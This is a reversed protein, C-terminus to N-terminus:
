IKSSVGMNYITLNLNRTKLKVNGVSSHNLVPVFKEKLVVPVKDSLIQFM